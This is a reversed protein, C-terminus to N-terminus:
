ARALSLAAPWAVSLDAVELQLDRACDLLAEPATVVTDRLGPPWEAVLDFAPEAADLLTGTAAGIRAVLPATGGPDDVFLALAPPEGTVPRWTAGADDSTMAAGTPPGDAWLLRGRNTRAVIWFGAPPVAAPDLPPIDVTYWAPTGRTALAAVGGPALVPGPGGAEARLEVVLEGAVTAALLGVRVLPRGELAAATVQRAAYRSDTVVAGRHAASALPSPSAATRRVPGFSGTLRATVAAPPPDGPVGAALVAGTGALPVRAPEDAHRHRVTRPPVTTLRLRVRSEAQCALRAEVTVTGSGGPDALLATLVPVLEVDVTTALAPEHEWALVPADAPGVELRLGRPPAAHVVEAAAAFTVPHLDLPGSPEGPPAGPGTVFRLEVRGARVPAGCGLQLRAPTGSVSGSPLQDGYLGQSDPPGFGPFGRVPLRAPTGRPAASLIARVPSYTPAPPPEADPDVEPPPTAVRVGGRDHVYYTEGAQPLALDLVTVRRVEHDADLDAVLQTTTSRPVPVTVEHDLPEVALSVSGLDVGLRTEGAPADALAPATLRLVLPVTGGGAPFDVDVPEGRVAGPALRAERGAVVAPATAEAVSQGAMTM